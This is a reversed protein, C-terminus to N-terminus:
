LLTYEHSTQTGFFQKHEYELLSVNVLSAAVAVIREMQEQRPWSGVKERGLMRFQIVWFTSISRFVLTFWALQLPIRGNSASNLLWFSGPITSCTIGRRLAPTIRMHRVEVPLVTNSSTSSFNVCLSRSSRMFTKRWASRAEWGSSVLRVAYGRQASVHRAAQLSACYITALCKAGTRPSLGEATM